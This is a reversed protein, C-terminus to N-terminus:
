DRDACGSTDVSGTHTDNDPYLRTLCWSVIEPSFGRRCLFAGLRRRGTAADLRAYTNLKKAAVAMAREHEDAAESPPLLQRIIEGPVGRAVLGAKIASYGHTGAKRMKAIYRQAYELDNLYGLDAMRAIAQAIAPPSYKKRSLATRLQAVTKPGYSLISLADQKALVAEAEGQLCAYDEPSYTAGAAVSWRACVEDPCVWETQDSFTILYIGTRRPYPQVSKVIHGDTTCGDAATSSPSQARNV